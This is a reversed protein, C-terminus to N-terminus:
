SWTHTVQFTLTFPTYFEAQEGVKFETIQIMEVDGGLSPDDEAVGIIADRLTILDSTTTGQGAFLCTVVVETTEEVCGPAFSASPCTAHLAPLRESSIFQTKWAEADVPFDDVSAIGDIARLATTLTDWWTAFSSAM